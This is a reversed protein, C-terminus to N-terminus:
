ENKGRKIYAMAEHLKEIALAKNEKSINSERIVEILEDFRSQM